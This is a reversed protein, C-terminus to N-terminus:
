GGSWCRSGEKQNSAAGAGLDSAAEKGLPTGELKLDLADVADSLAFIFASTVGGTHDGVESKMYANATRVARVLLPVPCAQCYELLTIRERRTLNCYRSLVGKGHDFEEGVQFECKPWESM